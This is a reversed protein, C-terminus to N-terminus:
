KFTLTKIVNQKTQETFKVWMSWLIAFLVAGSSMITTLDGSSINNMIEGVVVNMDTTSNAMIATAIVTITHRAFGGILEKNM